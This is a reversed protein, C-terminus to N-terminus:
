PTGGDDDLEDPEIPCPLGPGREVSDLERTQIEGARTVQYFILRAGRDGNPDKM